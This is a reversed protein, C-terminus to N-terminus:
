PGRPAARWGVPKAPAPPRAKPRRFYERLIFPAVQRGYSRKVRPPLFRYAGVVKRCKPSGCSCAMSFGPWDVDTSYDFTLEEGEEIARRSVIGMGSIVCNPDCSHNIYWVPGGKRPVVYRDYDVQITYPWIEHPIDWIWKPRERFTGIATSEKIPGAAFM